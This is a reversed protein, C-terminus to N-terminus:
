LRDVRVPVKVDLWFDWIQKVTVGKAVRYQWSLAIVNLVASIFVRSLRGDLRGAM